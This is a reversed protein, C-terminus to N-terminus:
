IALGDIKIMGQGDEEPAEGMNLLLIALMEYQAQSHWKNDEGKRSYRTMKMELLILDGPKLDTLNWLPREDYTKLSGEMRTDYVADFLM